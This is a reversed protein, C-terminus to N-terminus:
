VGGLGQIKNADHEGVVDVIEEEDADQAKEGVKGKAVAKGKADGNSAEEGVKGKTVAKQREKVEGDGGEAKESQAQKRM